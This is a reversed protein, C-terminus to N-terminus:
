RAPRKSETAPVLLEEALEAFRQAVPTLPTGRLSIIGIERRLVPEIIRLPKLRSSAPISIHPLVAVGLGQEAMAIITHVQVFEYNTKLNVGHKTAAANVDQQLSSTPGLGLVPLAGLERLTIGRKRSPRYSPEVMAYYEDDLVSRFDLASMRGTKPGLGFDVEAKRVSELLEKVGLERVHVTVRPHEKSFESLILPLRTSAVTPICSIALRANHFDVADRLQLLGTDIEALAKRASILLQTGENTLEVRRTTRRFLTLGLQAELQKIQMSVAPASRHSYEAAKVFSNHEAVLLFTHLLKLNINM